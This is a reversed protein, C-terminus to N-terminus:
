ITLYKLERIYHNNVSDSYNIQLAVMALEPVNNPYRGLTEEFDSQEWCYFQLNDVIEIAKSYSEIFYDETNVAFFIEELKECFDESEFDISEWATFWEANEIHTKLTDALEDFIDLASWPIDFYGERYAVM